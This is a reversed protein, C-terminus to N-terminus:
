GIVGGRGREAMGPPRGLHRRTHLAAVLARGEEVAHGAAPEEVPLGHSRAWKGSAQGSTGMAEGIQRWSYRREGQRATM